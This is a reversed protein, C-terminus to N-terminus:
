NLPRRLMRPQAYDIAEDAPITLIEDVNPGEVYLSSMVTSATSSVQLGKALGEGLDNALAQVDPDMSMVGAAFVVMTGLVVSKRIYPKM